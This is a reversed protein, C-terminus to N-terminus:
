PRVRRRLFPLPPRASPRSSLLSLALRYLALPSHRSPPLCPGLQAGLRACALGGGATPRRGRPGEAGQRSGQACLLGARGRGRLQRRRSASCRGGQGQGGARLSTWVRAAVDAGSGLGGLLGLRSAPAPSVTQRSLAGSSGCEEVGLLPEPDLSDGVGRAGQGWPGPSPVSVGGPTPPARAGGPLLPCVASCRCVYSLVPRPSGPGLGAPPVPRSPRAANPARARGGHQTPLM